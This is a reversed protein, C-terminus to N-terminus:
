LGEDANTVLSIQEHLFFLSRFPQILSRMNPRSPHVVKGAVCRPLPRDPRAAAAALQDHCCPNALRTPFALRQSLFKITKIRHSVAWQLTKWVSAADDRWLSKGDDPNKVSKEPGKGPRPFLRRGRPTLTDNECLNTRKVADRITRSRCRRAPATPERPGVKATALSTPRTSLVAIGRQTDAALLRSGPHFSCLCFVSPRCHTGSGTAEVTLALWGAGVAAVARARQRKRENGGQEALRSPSHCECKSSGSM